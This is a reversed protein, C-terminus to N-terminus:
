GMLNTFFNLRINKNKRAKRKQHKQIENKNLQWKKKTAM